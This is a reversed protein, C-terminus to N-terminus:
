VTNLYYIDFRQGKRVLTYYGGGLLKTNEKAISLGLGLGGVNKTLQKKEQSFRKFIVEQNKPEIGIGTDKIYLDLKDNKLHYGFEIFGEFTFKLANELLNSVIKNM